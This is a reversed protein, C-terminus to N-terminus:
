SSASDPEADTTDDLRASFPAGRLALAALYRRKEQMGDREAASEKGPERAPEKGPKVAPKRGPKEAPEKGTGFLDRRLEPPLDRPELERGAHGRALLILEELDLSYVDVRTREFDDFARREVALRRGEGAFALASVASDGHSEGRLVVPLTRKKPGPSPADGVADPVTHLSAVGDLHGIALRRGDPSFALASARGKPGHELRSPPIGPTILWPQGTATGAALLVAAGATPNFALCTIGHDSSWELTLDPLSWLWAEGTQSVAALWRGGSQFLFSPPEHERGRHNLEVTHSRGTELHRVVFRSDGPEIEIRWPHAAADPDNPPLVEELRRDPIARPEAPLRGQDQIPWLRVEAQRRLNAASALWVRAPPGTSHQSFVLFDPVGRHGHLVQPATRVPDERRRVLPVFYRITKDHGAQARLRPMSPPASPASVDALQEAFGFPVPKGKARGAGLEPARAGALRIPPEALERLDWAYVRGGGPRGAGPRGGGPRGAGPRGGGPRGAGPRGAGPRGAGPGGAGPRGGGPRRASDVAALRVQFRGQDDFGLGTIRAGDGPVALPVSLPTRALVEHLAQEATWRSHDGAKAVLRAAAEAAEAATRADGASARETLWPEELLRGAVERTEIAQEAAEAALLGSRQWGGAIDQLAETALHRVLGLRREMESAVVFARELRCLTTSRSLRQLDKDRNWLKGRDFRSEEWELARRWLAQLTTANEGAHRLWVRLRDWVEILGGCALELHDKGAVVVRSALLAPLVRVELRRREAPDALRLERWPVPRGAPSEGDLSVTRLFLSRLVPEVAPDEGLLRQCTAEARRGLLGAVGQTGDRKGGEPTVLDAAVLLRDADRRRQWAQRYMEALTESLLPLPAPTAEVEDVLGEVLEPPEFVLARAAAPGLAVELLEVRSPRVVAHLRWRRRGASDRAELARRLDLRRTLSDGRVTVLTRTEDSAAFARWDDRRIEDIRQELEGLWLLLGTGATDTLERIEALSRVVRWRGVLGGLARESVSLFDAVGGRALWRRLRDALERPRDLLELLGVRKLWAREGAEKSSEAFSPVGLQSMVAGIQIQGAGAELRDGLGAERAWDRIAGALSDAKAARQDASLDDGWGVDLALSAAWKRVAQLDERTILYRRLRSRRLWSLLRRRGGAPDALVPLLGAQVLSRKGSGSPGVVALAPPAPPESGSGPQRLALFRDLLELTALERGCFLNPDVAEGFAGGGWPNADPHLPPDPLPSPKFGPVHFIFQGRLPRLPMLGPTQVDVGAARLRADVYQHLEAATVIQDSRSGSRFSDAEATTLGEILAQAFPSHPQDPDRPNRDMAQQNFSASTLLQWATGEVFRKYESYYIPRDPLGGGRFFDFALAGGFCCDLVLLLHRCTLRALPKTQELRELREPDRIGDVLQDRLDKMPLWTDPNDAEADWPVLYGAHEGGDATRVVGHGAFYIVAAVERATRAKVTVLRNILKHIRRRTAKENLLPGPSRRSLGVIEYGQVECLVRAVETADSEPTRLPPFGPAADGTGIGATGAGQYDIGIVVALKKLAVVDPPHVDNPDIEGREFIPSDGERRPNQALNEATVREAIEPFIRAWTLGATDRGGIARCLHTTFLGQARGEAVTESALEKAACASLVIASRGAGRLWGTPGRPEGGATEVGGERDQRVERLGPAFARAQRRDDTKVRRTGAPAGAVGRLDTVGGSHCCDFILTLYPTRRNLDRIWGQIERDTIDRNQHSGRGSDHPVITQFRQGAHLRRGAIESGHGSYYVAVVDDPGAAATLERVASLIGERTPAGPARRGDEVAAAQRQQRCFLCDCGREMVDVLVRVNDASFGEEILVERMRVVDNHCGALPQGDQKSIFPYTRIGILLARRTTM